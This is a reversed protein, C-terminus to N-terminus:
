ITDLQDLDALADITMWASRKSELDITTTGQRQSMLVQAVHVVIKVRPGGGDDRKAREGAKLIAVAALAARVPSEVVAGLGFAAVLGSRGSEVMEGGFTEVKSLVLDLVRNGDASAAPANVVVTGQLPAVRRPEWPARGPAALPVPGDAREPAAAD